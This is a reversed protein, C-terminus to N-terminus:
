DEDRSTPITVAFPVAEQVTEIDPDLKLMGGNIQRLTKEARKREASLKHLEEGDDGMDTTGRASYLRYAAFQVACEVIIPDSAFTEQGEAVLASRTALPVAYPGGRLMANIQADAWTLASTVRLEAAATGGTNDLDAWKAVNELGYKQEINNRTAYAM